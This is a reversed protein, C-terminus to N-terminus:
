ALYRMKMSPEGESTVVIVILKKYAERSRVIQLFELGSMKPLLLELLVIKIDEDKKLAELGQWGDEAELVDYEQSLSVKLAERRGM